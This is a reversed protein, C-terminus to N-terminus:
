IDWNFNFTWKLYCGTHIESAEYVLTISLYPILMESSNQLVVPLIM